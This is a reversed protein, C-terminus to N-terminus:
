TAEAYINRPLRIKRAFYYTVTGDNSVLGIKGRCKAFHLVFRVGQSRSIEVLQELLKLM